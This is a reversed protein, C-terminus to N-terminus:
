RKGKARRSQNGDGGEVNEQIGVDVRAPPVYMVPEARLNEWPREEGVWGKACVVEAGLPPPVRGPDRNAETESPGRSVPRSPPPHSSVTAKKTKSNLTLVKHAQPSPVIQV